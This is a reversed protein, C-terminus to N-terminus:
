TLDAERLDKGARRLMRYIAQRMVLKAIESSTNKNKLNASRRHELGALYAEQFCDAVTARDRSNLAIRATVAGALKMLQDRSHEATATLAQM